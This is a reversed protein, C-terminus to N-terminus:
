NTVPTYLHARGIEFAFIEFVLRDPPPKFLQALQRGGTVDLPQEEDKVFANVAIDVAHHVLPEILFRAEARLSQDLIIDGLDDGRQVLDGRRAANRAFFLAVEKAAGLMAVAARRQQQRTRATEQEEM